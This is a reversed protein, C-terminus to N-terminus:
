GRDRPSPSTYLLCVAHVGVAAGALLHPPSYPASAGKRQWTTHMPAADPSSTPSEAGPMSIGISMTTDSDTADSDNDDNTSGRPSVSSAFAAAGGVFSQRRSPVSTDISLLEVGGGDRSSDVVGSGPAGPALRELHVRQQKRFALFKEWKRVSNYWCCDRQAEVSVIAHVLLVNALLLALVAFCHTWLALFSDDVECTTTLSLGREAVDDGAVTGSSGSSGRAPRWLLGDTPPVGIACPIQSFAASGQRTRYSISASETSVGDSESAFFQSYPASRPWAHPWLRNSPFVVDLSVCLGTAFFTATFAASTDGSDGGEDSDDSSGSM